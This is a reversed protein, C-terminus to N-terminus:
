TELPERGNIDVGLVEEIVRAYHPGPRVEGKEWRILHRPSTGLMEALAAQTWRPNQLRASRLRRGLAQYPYKETMVMRCLIVPSM